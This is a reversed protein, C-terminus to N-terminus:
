HPVMKWSGTISDGVQDLRECRQASVADAADGCMRVRIPTRQALRIESRIAADDKAAFAM